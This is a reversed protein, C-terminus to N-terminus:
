SAGCCWPANQRQRWGEHARPVAATHPTLGGRPPPRPPAIHLAPSGPGARHGAEPSFYNDFATEEDCEAQQSGGEKVRKNARKEKSGQQDEEGQSTKEEGRRRLESPGRGSESSRGGPKSTKGGARKRVQGEARGSVGRSEQEGQEKAPLVRQGRARSARKSTEGEARKNAQGVAREGFESTHTTTLPSATTALPTATRPTVLTGQPRPSPPLPCPRRLHPSDWVAREGLIELTAWM